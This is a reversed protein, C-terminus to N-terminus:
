GQWYTWGDVGGPHGVAGDGRARKDLRSSEPLDTMRLVQRGPRISRLVQRDLMVQCRWRFSQAHRIREVEQRQRGARGWLRHEWFLFCYRLVVMTRDSLGSGLIEGPAVRTPRCYNCLSAKMLTVVCFAAM